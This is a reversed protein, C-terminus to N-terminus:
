RKLKTLHLYIHYTPTVSTYPIVKDGDVAQMKESGEGGSGTRGTVQTKDGLVNVLSTPTVHLHLKEQTSFIGYLNRLTVDVIKRAEGGTQTDITDFGDNPVGLGTELPTIKANTRNLSSISRPVTPVNEQM